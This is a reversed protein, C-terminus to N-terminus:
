HVAVSPLDLGRLVTALPIGFKEALDEPTTQNVGETIEEDTLDVYPREATCHSAIYLGVMKDMRDARPDSLLMLAWRKLQLRYKERKGM